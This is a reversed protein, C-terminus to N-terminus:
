DKWAWLVGHGWYNPHNHGVTFGAKEFLDRAADFAPLSPAGRRHYEIVWTMSGLSSLRPDELIPWEGGEIDMKVLDVDDLHEFIDVAPLSGPTPEDRFEVTRGAGSGDGLVAHGSQTMAAAGVVEIPLDPSIGARFVALNEPDPEFSVIRATPWQHHAWHAFMGINGGLDLIQSSQALRDKLEAPPVYEGAVMLEHFAELDRGHLLTVQGGARLPWSRITGRSTALEAVAFKAPTTTLFAAKLFRLALVSAVFRRVAPQLLVNRLGPLSAIRRLLNMM